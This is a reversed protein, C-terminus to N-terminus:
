YTDVYPWEKDMETKFADNYTKSRKYTALFTKYEEPYLEKFYDNLAKVAARQACWQYAMSCASDLIVNKEANDLDKSRSLVTQMIAVTKEIKERIM